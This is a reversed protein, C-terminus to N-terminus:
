NAGKTISHKQELANAPLRGSSLMRQFADAQSCDSSHTWKLADAPPRGSSLMRQRACWQHSVGEIKVM